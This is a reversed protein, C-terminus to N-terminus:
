PKVRDLVALLRDIRVSDKPTGHVDDQAVHILNRIELLAQRPKLPREDDEVGVTFRDLDVHRMLGMEAKEIFGESKGTVDISHAVTGDAQSRVVLAVAM